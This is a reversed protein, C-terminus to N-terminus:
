AKKNCTITTDDMIVVQVGLASIFQFFSPELAKILGSSQIGKLLHVPHTRPKSTM